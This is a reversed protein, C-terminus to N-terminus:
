ESRRAEEELLVRRLVKGIMSKPLSERFEIQTPVKYRAMRERCFQTVEEATTSAAPKVVLYAKVTQGRYEDPLGVVVADQIAPHEYLVEEVERPYINYGSAVIMDKARDVIYTFGDEDMRAIDGTYLWGDRITRATEDPRNWYGKMAQPGRICLEGLEGAPVSETGTELDVLKIETDPLPLGISGAKRKGDIPTCHTVPSAETLGYGEVLKGGTLSEFANQVEVPLAAAGSICAKISRLDYKAVDPAHNIAVYIPPAGPFLTPREKHILGLVQKLDFKPVLILTAALLAGLHLCVTLGYVHFFPMVCLMRESGPQLGPMWERVQHVNAMLNRHTLMAGKSLGTTGGTYQLLAVDTAPNVPFPEPAQGEYEQLLGRLSLLDPDPPVKGVLDPKLLPLLLRLPGPMFDRLGTTIVKRLRTNARVNAIRPWLLDLGVLVDAGCDKLQHELEREVYLPNCFAVVAGAKLAGFYAIVTQPVNPLMIAVRDGPRVGLGRLAAGFAGSLRHIESWTLKRGAFLTATSSGHEAAAQELLTHLPRDPYPLSPRIGEPYSQLWPKAVDLTMQSSCGRGLPTHLLHAVSDM